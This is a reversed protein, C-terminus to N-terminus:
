YDTAPATRPAPIRGDRVRRRFWIVKGTATVRTGFTDALAAVLLLGRGSEADPDSPRLRPAEHCGDGVQCIVCCGRRLRLRLWVPGDAHEIANTVLEDVMLVIDDAATDPVGWRRLAGAATRRARGVAAPDSALRLALGRPPTHVDPPGTRRRPPPGNSPSPAVTAVAGAPNVTM